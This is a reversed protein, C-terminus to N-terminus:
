PVNRAPRPRPAARYRARTELYRLAVVSAVLLGFGRVTVIVSSLDREFYGIATIATIGLLLRLTTRRKLTSDILGAAAGCGLAVLPVGAAGFSGVMSGGWTPLFDHTLLVPLNYGKALLIKESRTEIPRSTKAPWVFSPVSLLAGNVYPTLGSRWDTTAQSQLVLAPFANGEMRARAEEVRAREKVL